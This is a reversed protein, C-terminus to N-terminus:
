TPLQITHTFEGFGARTILQGQEATLNLKLDVRKGLAQASHRLAYLLQIFSVDLATIGGAELALHDTETLLRLLAQRIPEANALTLQGNLLLTAPQSQTASRITITANRM